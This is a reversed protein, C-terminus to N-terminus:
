HAHGHAPAAGAMAAMKVQYNGRTVLWEGASLGKTVAVLQGQAHAIEVSRLEFQEGSLQVVVQYRGFDELLASQPILLAQESLPSGLQLEALSGELAEFPAQIELFIPLLPQEPSVQQGISKITAEVAQRNQDQKVWFRTARRAQPLRDPPIHAKILQSRSSGIRLLSQGTETYAGNAIAVQKIYGSIPARLVVGDKGYNQLLQQYEAQALKYQEQVKEWEADPVIQLEHLEQKRSYAQQAQEFRTKAQRIQLALSNSNLATGSIRLLVQGKRVPMGEMLNPQAYLVNGPATATLSRHSAPNSMWRGLAKFTSYAQGEQAQITQFDMKWAQEKSFSIAGAKEARNALAEQAAALDAYVEVLGLDIRISTGAKQLGIYLQQTGVQEPRLTPQFLGPRSPGEVQHRIGRKGKVLSITVSGSTVAQHGELVTFHAAFSSTKGLILVPYEVFLELGQKWITTDMRPIEEHPHPHATPAPSSPQCAAFLLLFSLLSLWKLM